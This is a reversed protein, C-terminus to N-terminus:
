GQVCKIGFLQFANQKAKELIEVYDVGKAEAIKRATFAIHASHCTKGRFPEPAMYPADTELLLRGLPIYQAVELPKKANKFTVTGGLGIYMGLNLIQKAFEVSGSFCHLVGKPRYKKLIEYTDQHAERDHVIVPLGLECALAVQQEFWEIQRPKNDASYHYDLGIEGIAVVKPNATYSKLREIDLDGTKPIDLPHYGVATYLYTYRDSLKILKEASNFDTACNIIACVGYEPLTKLLDDLIEGFRRDDYHAHTDFITGKPAPNPIM